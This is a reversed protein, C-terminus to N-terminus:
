DAGAGERVKVAMGRGFALMAPGPLEARGVALLEGDRHLVAVEDGPRIQPDASTVFKAFANKGDRLYPGSDAGVAVRATPPDLGALLRRGGVLGLTFRGDVNYTVVRGADAHIQEPRGSSTRRVEHEVDLPFLAHGAGGGFQYDAITRLDELDTETM